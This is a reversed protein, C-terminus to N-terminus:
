IIGPINIKTKHASFLRYACKELHSSGKNECFAEQINQNSYFIKSLDNENQHGSIQMRNQLAQTETELTQM